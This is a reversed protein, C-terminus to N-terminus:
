CHNGVEECLLPSDVPKDSVSTVDRGVPKEGLSGGVDSISEVRDEEKSKGFTQNPQGSAM